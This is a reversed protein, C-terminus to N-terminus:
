RRELEDLADRLEPIDLQLTSALRWGPTEERFLVTATCPETMSGVLYGRSGEVSGWVIFQTGIRVEADAAEVGTIILDVDLDDYTGFTEGIVGAFSEYDFGLHDDYSRSVASMVGLLREKEFDEVMSHLQRRAAAGPAFYRSVSFGGFVLLLVAVGIAVRRDM